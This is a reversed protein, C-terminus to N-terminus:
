FAGPRSTYSSQWIFLWLKMGNTQGVPTPVGSGFLDIRKLGWLLWKLLKSKTSNMRRVRLFRQWRKPNSLQTWQMRIQVWRQFDWDQSTGKPSVKLDLMTIKQSGKIAVKWKGLVAQWVVLAHAEKECIELNPTEENVAIEGLDRM